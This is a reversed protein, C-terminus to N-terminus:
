EAVPPTTASDNVTATSLMPQSKVRKQKTGKKAISKKEVKVLMYNSVTAQLGDFEVLTARRGEPTRDIVTGVQNAELHTIGNQYSISKPPFTIARAVMVKDGPKLNRAM